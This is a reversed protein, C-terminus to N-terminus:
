VVSFKREQLHKQEGSKFKLKQPYNKRRKDVSYFVPASFSFIYNLNLSRTFSSMSCEPLLVFILILPFLNLSTSFTSFNLKTISGYRSHFLLVTYSLFSPPFSFCLFQFSPKQPLCFTSDRFSFFPSAKNLCCVHPLSFQRSDFSDVFPLSLSHPLSISLPFSPIVKTPKYLCFFTKFCCVLSFHALCFSQTNM